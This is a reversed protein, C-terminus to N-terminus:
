LATITFIDHFTNAGSEASVGHLTQSSNHADTTTVSISNTDDFITLVDSADCTIRADIDEGAVYNQGVQGEVTVSGGNEKVIRLVNASNSPNSHWHNNIDLIRFGLAPNNGGLTITCTISVNANGADIPNVSGWNAVSEDIHFENSHIHRNVDDGALVSQWGGGVVDRDPTHNILQVGDIDTFNDFVLFEDFIGGGAAFIGPQASLGGLGGLGGM